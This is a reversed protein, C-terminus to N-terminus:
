GRHIYRNPRAERFAPARRRNPLPFGNMLATLTSCLAQQESRDESAYPESIGTFTGLFVKGQGDDVLEASLFVSCTTGQATSVVTQVSRVRGEELVIGRLRAGEDTSSCLGIGHMERGILHPRPMGLLRELEENVDMIVGSQANAAFLANPSHSFFAAFRRESEMLQGEIRRQARFEGAAKQWGRASYAALALSSVVIISFARGIIPYGFHAGLLDVVNFRVLGALLIAASIAIIVLDRPAANHRM